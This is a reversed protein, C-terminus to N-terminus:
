YVLHKKNITFLVMMVLGLMGLGIATFLGILNSTGYIVLPATVSIIIGLLYIWYGIKRLRWMLLTGLLTLLGYCFNAIASKYLNSSSMGSLTHRMMNIAFNETAKHQPSIISDTTSRAIASDMSQELKSINHFINAQIANMATSYFALASIVFSVICLVTIFVPREAILPKAETLKTTEM